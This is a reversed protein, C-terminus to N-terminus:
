RTMSRSACTGSNLRFMNGKATYYKNAVFGLGLALTEMIDENIM